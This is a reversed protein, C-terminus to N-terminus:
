NLGSPPPAQQKMMLRMLEQAREADAGELMMLGKWEQVVRPPGSRERAWVALLMDVVYLSTATVLFYLAVGEVQRSIIGITLPVSLSLLLSVMRRVLRLRRDGKTLADDQQTM